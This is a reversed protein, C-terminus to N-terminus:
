FELIIECLSNRTRMHKKNVTNIGAQFVAGKSITYVTFWKHQLLYNSYNTM